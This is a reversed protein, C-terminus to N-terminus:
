YTWARSADDTGEFFSYNSLYYSGYGYPTAGNANAYDIVTQLM